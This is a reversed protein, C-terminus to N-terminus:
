EFLYTLHEGATVCGTKMGEIKLLKIATGHFKYVRDLIIFKRTKVLNGALNNLANIGSILRRFNGIALNGSLQLHNQNDLQSNEGKRGIQRSHRSKPILPCLFGSASM